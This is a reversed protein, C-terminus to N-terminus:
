DAPPTFRTRPRLAGRLLAATILSARNRVNWARMARGLHWKVAHPSYDTARGIEENSQGQAALRIMELDAGELYGPVAVLDLAAAPDNEADLLPAAGSYPREAVSPTTSWAQAWCAGLETAVLSARGLMKSLESRSLRPHHPQLFATFVRLAPIGGHLVTLLPVNAAIINQASERVAAVSGNTLPQGTDLCHLVDPLIEPVIERYREALWQGSPSADFNQPRLLASELEERHNLLFGM